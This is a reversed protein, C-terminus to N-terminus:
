KTSLSQVLARFQNGRDAYNKFMDFSSTGPSFLVVDGPQAQDRAIQVSEELSDAPLCPLHQWWSSAIRSRMEGILVACRAKRAVLASISEFEFGKDKGGAILVVPRTESILAKELADLNTSKSDNIYDIGDIQGVLECRHPLPRYACLPATMENFTLGCVLGVGLAAMLNEANHLGRLNTESLDLVPQGHHHIVNGQMAFDGGNAYASFTIRRARLAPLEDRLNVIAFDEETQNEFIRLKAARYERLTPYRDLHDPAFNLWVAIHPRFHRITELQFSSVELTMLALESSRRVVSSFSPSINGAAITSKGCANLMAAVLETTTTKGNTGTIGIIPCHCFEAALELEGVCDNEGCFKKALESAPDIGPSLIALDFRAEHTRTQAGALVTVGRRRLRQMRAELMTEEASDLVTVIAGEEALLNAVTEGTEGLGLVAIRQNRYRENKVAIEADGTRSLRVHGVFDLVPRYGHKGEV